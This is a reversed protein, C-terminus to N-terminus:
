NSFLLDLFYEDDDLDMVFIYYSDFIDDVTDYINLRLALVFFRLIFAINNTIDRSFQKLAFGLTRGEKVSPELFSFYHTSSKFIFFLLLSLFLYFIVLNLTEILEEQDDDFTALSM